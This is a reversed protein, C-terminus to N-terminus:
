REALGPLIKFALAFVARARNSKEDNESYQTSPDAYDCAGLVMAVAAVVFTKRLDTVVQTLRM